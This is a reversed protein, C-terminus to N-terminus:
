ESIADPTELLSPCRVRHNFENYCLPEVRPIRAWRQGLELGRLFSSLGILMGFLLLALIKPGRNM